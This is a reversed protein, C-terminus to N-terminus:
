ICVLMIYYRSKRRINAGISSGWYKSSSSGMSWPLLLTVQGVWSEPCGTTNWINIRGVRLITAVAGFDRPLAMNGEKTCLVEKQTISCRVRPGLLGRRLFHRHCERFWRTTVTPPGAGDSSLPLHLVPGHWQSSPKQINCLSTVSLFPLSSYLYQILASSM